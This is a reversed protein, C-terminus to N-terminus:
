LLLTYDEASASAFRVVWLLVSVWELEMTSSITLFEM